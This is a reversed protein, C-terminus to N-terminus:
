GLSSPKKKLKTLYTSQCDDELPMLGFKALTLLVSKKKSDHRTTAVELFENDLYPSMHSRKKWFHCIKANKELSLRPVIRV